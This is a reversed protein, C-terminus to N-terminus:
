GDGYRRVRRQRDRRVARPTGPLRELVAHRRAQRRESGAVADVRRAAAPRQGIRHGSQARWPNRRGPHWIPRLRQHRCRQLRDDGSLVRADSAVLAAPQVDERLRCSVSHERHAPLRTGSSACLAGQGGQHRPGQSERGPWRAQDHVHQLRAARPRPRSTVDVPLVRLPARPQRDDKREGALPRDPLCGM